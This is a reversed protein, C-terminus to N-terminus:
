TLLDKGNRVLRTMHLENRLYAKDAIRLPKRARIREEIETRRNADASTGTRKGDWSRFREGPSLTNSHPPM